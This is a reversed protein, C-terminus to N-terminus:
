VRRAKVEKARQAAIKPRSKPPETPHQAPELLDVKINTYLRHETIGLVTYNLNSLGFYHETHPRGKRWAINQEREELM